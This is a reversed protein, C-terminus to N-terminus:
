YIFAYLTFSSSVCPSVSQHSMLGNILSHQGSDPSAELLEEGKNQFTSTRETKPEKPGDKQRKEFGSTLTLGLCFRLILCRM